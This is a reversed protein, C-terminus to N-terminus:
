SRDPPLYLTASRQVRLLWYWVALALVNAGVMFPGPTFLSISAASSLYANGGGRLSPYVQLWVSVFAGSAFSYSLLPSAFVPIQMAWLVQNLRIWGARTQITRVGTYASFAYMSLVVGFMAWSIAGGKLDKTSSTLAMVGWAAGGIELLGLIVPALKPFRASAEQQPTLWSELVDLRPELFKAGCSECQQAHVPVKAPCAPCHPM